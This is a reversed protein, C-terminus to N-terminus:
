LDVWRSGRSFFKVAACAHAWSGCQFHFPFWLAVGMMEWGLFSEVKGCSKFLSRLIAILNLACKVLSLSTGISSVPWRQLLGLTCCNSGGCLVPPFADGAAVARRDLICFNPTDLCKYPAWGPSRTIQHLATHAHICGYFGIFVTCCCLMCRQISNRRALRDAFLGDAKSVLLDRSCCWFINWLAEYWSFLCLGSDIPSTLNDSAVGHEKSRLCKTRPWGLM